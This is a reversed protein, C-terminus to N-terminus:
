RKRALKADLEKELERALGKGRGRGGKRGEKRKCERGGERGRVKEMERRRQRRKEERGARGGFFDEMAREREQKGNGDRQFSGHFHRGTGANRTGPKPDSLESGTRSTAMRIRVPSLGWERKREMEYDRTGEFEFRTKRLKELEADGVRKSPDRPTASGRGAVRSGSRGPSSPGYM